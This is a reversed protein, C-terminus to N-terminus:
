GPPGPARDAGLFSRTKPRSLVWHVVLLLLVTAGFAFVQNVAAASSRLFLRDLWYYLSFLWAARACFRSAWARGRWLGWAIPPLAVFWVLGSLALYAPTFPLVEQLFTWNRIAEILRILHISAISLVGLALLTVGTPRTPHDM